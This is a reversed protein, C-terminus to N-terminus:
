QHCYSYFLPYSVFFYTVSYVTSVYCSYLCYCCHSNALRIVKKSELYPMIDSPIVDVFKPQKLRILKLFHEDDKVDKLLLRDALKHFEQYCVCVFCFCCKFCLSM